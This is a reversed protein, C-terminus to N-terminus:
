QDGCQDGAWRNVGLTRIKQDTKGLAIRCDRVRAADDGRSKDLFARLYYGAGIDPALEIARDADASAKDLNQGSDAYLWARHVHPVWEAPKLQIAETLYRIAENRVKPFNRALRGFDVRSFYHNPDCVAAQRWYLMQKSLTAEDKWSGDAYEAAAYFAEANCEEASFADHFAEWGKKSDGLKMRTRALEIRASNGFEKSHAILYGFDEEAKTREHTEVYMLARNERSADGRPGLEIAKTAAAIGLAPEDLQYHLYGKRHWTLGDNPDRALIENALELVEPTRALEPGVKGGNYIAEFKQKLESLPEPRVAKLQTDATQWACRFGNRPLYAQYETDRRYSVTTWEALDQWSGGRVTHSSGSLAGRPNVAPSASYYDKDFVDLTYEAVNGLMDYLNWANAAKQAVQHIYSGREFLFDEWNGSNKDYLERVPSPGSNESYWATKDRDRDAQAGNGARAAYEWEAETPLRGGAWGCYAQATPWQTTVPEKPEFVKHFSNPYKDNDPTVMGAFNRYPKRGGPPEEPDHKDGSMAAFIEFAENTVETQGLWYGGTLQVKHAPQASDYCPELACGMQFEGAPIWVYLQGDKPNRRTDGAKPQGFLAATLLLFLSIRWV